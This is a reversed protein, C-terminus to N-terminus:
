ITFGGQQEAGQFSITSFESGRKINNWRNHFRELQDLSPMKQENSAQHRYKDWMADAMKFDIEPHKYGQLTTARIIFWMVANRYKFSDIIMPFGKEDLQFAKYIVTIDGSDFSTQIFDANLNYYPLICQDIDSPNLCTSTTVDTIEKLLDEKDLLDQETLDTIADILDIKAYIVRLRAFEEDTLVTMRRDTTRLNLGSTDSGILMRCGNYEIGYLAVLDCPLAVRHNKTTLEQYTNKLGCHYGIGEIADGIWDVADGLWSADEIKFDKITKSLIYETSVRLSM